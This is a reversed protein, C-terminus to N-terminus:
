EATWEVAEEVPALADWVITEENEQNDELDEVIRWLYKHNSLEVTTTWDVMDIFCFIDDSAAWM